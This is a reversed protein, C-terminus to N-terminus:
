RRLWAWVFPRLIIYPVSAPVVVHFFLQRDNADFVRAAKILTPDVNKVGQYITVVMTLFVAFFIIIIKASTGIGCAAIVVPILAIASDHASSFGRSSLREFARM